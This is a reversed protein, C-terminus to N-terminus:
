RTWLVLGKKYVIKGSQRVMTLVENRMKPDVSIHVWQGDPSAPGVGELILQDFKLGSGRIARAVEIPTMGPINFDAAYGEVHDSTASGGVAKNLEASRYGSSVIIPAGVTARIIELFEATKRLNEVVEDSPKNDIGKRFATQSVTMEALTFNPSLKM